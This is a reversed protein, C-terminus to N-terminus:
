RCISGAYIGLSTHYCLWQMFLLLLVAIAIVVIQVSSIQYGGINISVKPTYLPPLTQCVAAGPLCRMLNQIFLQVGIAAVM